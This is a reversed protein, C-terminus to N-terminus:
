WSSYDYGYADDLASDIMEGFYDRDDQSFYFAYGDERPQRVKEVRGEYQPLPNHAEIQRMNRLSGFEVVRDVFYQDFDTFGLFKLMKTLEQSTDARLNEYRVLLLEELKKSNQAWSNLFGILTLLTNGNKQKPRDVGSGRLFDAFGIEPDKQSRYTRFHSILTDRLDRILLMVRKNRFFLSSYYAHSRQVRPIEEKHNYKFRHRKNRYNPILDDSRISTITEALRFNDILSRALMTSVWHTGSGPMSVLFVDKQKSRANQYRWWRYFRLPSKLKNLARESVPKM